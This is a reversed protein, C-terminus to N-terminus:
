IGTSGFGGSRIDPGYHAAEFDKVEKWSIRDYKVLSIQAIRDGERIHYQPYCSIKTLVICAVGRYDNDVIGVHTHIGKLVMSSRGSVLGGYGKPIKMHLDLDVLM